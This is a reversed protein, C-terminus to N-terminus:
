KTILFLNKSKPPILSKYQEPKKTHLTRSYDEVYIPRWGHSSHTKQWSTKLLTVATSDATPIVFPNYKKLNRVIIFYSFEAYRTWQVRNWLNPM